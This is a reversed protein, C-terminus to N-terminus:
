LKFCILKMFVAYADTEYPMQMLRKNLQRFLKEKEEPLYVRSEDKPNNPPKCGSVNIEIDDFPNSLILGKKKSYKM